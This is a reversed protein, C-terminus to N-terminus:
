AQYSSTGAPGTRTSRAIWGPPLAAQVARDVDAQGSAQFEGVVDDVNPPNHNLFTKGGEASVWKGAILNKYIKTTM